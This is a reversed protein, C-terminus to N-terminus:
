PLGPSSSKFEPNQTLNLYKVNPKPTHHMAVAVCESVCTRVGGDHGCGGVQLAQRAAERAGPTFSKSLALVAEVWGAPCGSSGSLVLGADLLELACRLWCPEDLLVGGSSSGSSSSSSSGVLGRAVDASNSFFHHVCKTLEGDRRPEYRGPLSSPPPPSSPPAPFFSPLAPPRPVSTLPAMHTSRQHQPSLTSALLVALHWCCGASNLHVNNIYNPVPLLVNMYIDVATFRYHHYSAQREVCGPVCWCM